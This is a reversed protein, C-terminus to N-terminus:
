RVRVRWYRPADHYYRVFARGHLRRLAREEFRIQVHLFVPAFVAFLLFVITGNMLFTGIVYLDAALYIPNRTRRFIGSTILDGPHKEDIGIRWSVGLQWYAAAFFAIAVIVLAGGTVVAAPHQLVRVGLPWPLFVPLGVAQLLVRGFFILIGVSFLVDMLRSSRTKSRFLALPNTGRAISLYVVNAGILGTVMGLSVLQFVGLASMTPLEFTM